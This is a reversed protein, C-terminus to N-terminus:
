GAYPRRRLFIFYMLALGVISSLITLAGDSHNRLQKLVGVCLLAIAAWVAIAATLAAASAAFFCQKCLRRPPFDSPSPTKSLIRAGFRTLRGISREKAEAEKGCNECTFM